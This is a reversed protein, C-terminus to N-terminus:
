PCRSDLSVFSIPQISESRVVESYDSWTSRAGLTEYTKSWGHLGGPALTVNNFVSLTQTSMVQSGSLLNGAIAFGLIQVSVGSDNKVYGQVDRMVYFLRVSAGTARVSGSTASQIVGVVNSSTPCVIPITTTSTTTTSATTSPAPISNASPVAVAPYDKRATTKVECATGDRDTDLHRNKSYGTASVAPRVAQLRAKTASSAVGKAWVKQLQKCSSYRKVGVKASVHAPSVASFLFASLVILAPLFRRMPSAYLKLKVLYHTGM